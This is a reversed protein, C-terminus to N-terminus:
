MNFFNKPVACPGIFKTPINHETEDRWPEVKKMSYTSSKKTLSHKSVETAFKNWDSICLRETLAVIESFPKRLM